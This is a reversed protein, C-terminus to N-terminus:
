AAAGEITVREAAQEAMLGRQLLYAIEGSLSRVNSAARIKLTRHVSSPLNVKVQSMAQGVEEKDVAM